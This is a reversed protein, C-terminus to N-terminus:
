KCTFILQTQHHQKLMLKNTIVALCQEKPRQKSRKQKAKV